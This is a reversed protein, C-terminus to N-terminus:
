NRAKVKPRTMHALRAGPTDLAHAPRVAGDYPSGRATRTRRRDLRPIRAGLDRAGGAQHADAVIVFTLRPPADTLRTVGVMKTSNSERAHPWVRRGGARTFGGAGDCPGRATVRGRATIKVGP